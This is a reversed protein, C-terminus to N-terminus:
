LNDVHCIFALFERLIRNLYTSCIFMQFHYCAQHRVHREGWIWNEFSKNSRSYPVKGALLTGKRNFRICTASGYELADELMEPLALAQHPDTFLYLEYNSTLSQLLMDWGMHLCWEHMSHVQTRQQLDNSLKKSIIEVIYPPSSLAAGQLRRNM